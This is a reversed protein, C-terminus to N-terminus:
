KKKVRKPKNEKTAKAEQRKQRRIDVGRKEDYVGQEDFDEPHSTLQEDVDINLHLLALMEKYRPMQLLAEYDEKLLQTFRSKCAMIFNPNLHIPPCGASLGFFKMYLLTVFAVEPTPNDSRDWIEKWYITYCTRKFNKKAIMNKLFEVMAFLPANAPDERYTKGYEEAQKEMSKRVAELMTQQDRVYLTLVPLEEKLPITVRKFGACLRDPIGALSNRREDTSNWLVELSNFALYHWLASEANNCETYVETWLIAKTLMEKIKEAIQEDSLSLLQKSFLHNLFIMQQSKLETEIGTRNNMDYTASFPFKIDYPNSLKITKM